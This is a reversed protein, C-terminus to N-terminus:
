GRQGYKALIEKERVLARSIKEADTKAEGVFSASSIKGGPGPNGGGSGRPAPLFIKMDPESLIDKIGDEVTVEMEVPPFGPMEPKKVKIKAVGDEDVVLRNTVLTLHNVIHDLAGDNVQGILANRLSTRGSDIRRASESAARKTEAEIRLKQESKLDENLKALQREYDSLEPKKQTDTPTPQPVMDKVVPALLDKWNVEKLQDALQPLRKSHNTIAANITSGLVKMQAETFGGSKDDDNGGGKGDDVVPDPSLLQLTRNFITM